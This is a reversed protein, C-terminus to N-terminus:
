KRDPQYTLAVVGSSFTQTDVLKLNVASEEKFLRKGSGLVVPYVLIRYEDVLDHEILTRVLEGSGYVLLNMEQKLRSIESFIGSPLLNANWVTQELTRSAVFKPCRNMRDAFGDEDKMSPWAAAFGEYTVRGLLLADSAFFEESKFKAIENNWYPATWAPEEMVGDLSVYESVVVKKM